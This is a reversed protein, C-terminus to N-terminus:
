SVSARLVGPIEALSRELHVSCAECTMGEISLSVTQTDGAVPIATEDHAIIAGVYKPFASFAVVVIASFWLMVKSILRTRSTKKNCGCSSDCTRASFYASYFGIALLVSALILFVLRYREFWASLGGASLGLSMLMLPLWCCASSAIASLVAGITSLGSRSPSSTM